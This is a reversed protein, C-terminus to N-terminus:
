YLMDSDTSIGSIIIDFDGNVTDSKLKKVKDRHYVDPLDESKRARKLSTKSAKSHISTLSSLLKLLVQPDPLLARTEHQFEQKLSVWRQLTRSSSARDIADLLRALSKLAELLLRLSGHKVLSDSHLLGRNIVMRSFARPVICKLMCQVELSDLSPPDQSPSVLSSFPNSTIASSVLDAVLSIAAFWTPSARPELNYPFEDLYSSSLLPRGHVIALLLERHYTIESAKLKKMVGLLRQPNGKLSNTGAKSDLMLGNCPDTCVMVLIKHAIEAAPGGLHNGSIIILQDLTVSRFLVSRLGPPVLSEPTLVRDRLTSLVYVVTDDDNSGLGRLVGSYM